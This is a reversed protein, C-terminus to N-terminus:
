EDDSDNIIYLPFGGKNTAPVENAGNDNVDGSDEGSKSSKIDSASSRPLGDVPLVHTKGNSDWTGGRWALGVRMLKFRHNYVGPVAGEIVVFYEKGAPASRLLDLVGSTFMEDYSTQAEEPMNMDKFCVKVGEEAM